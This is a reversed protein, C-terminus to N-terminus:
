TTLILFHRKRQTGCRSIHHILTSISSSTITAVSLYDVNNVSMHVYSVLFILTSPVYECNYPLLVNRKEHKFINEFAIKLSKLLYDDQTTCAAACTMENVFMPDLFDVHLKMKKTLAVKAM